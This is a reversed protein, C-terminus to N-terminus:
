ANEDAEGKALEKKLIYGLSGPKVTTKDVVGVIGYQKLRSLEFQEAINTCLVVPIDRTDEYSRLENLLAFGTSGTLLVDLVIADPTLGRDIFDVAALAHPVVLVEFGALELERAEIDALWSDDEVLLIKKM